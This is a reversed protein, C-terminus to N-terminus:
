IEIPIGWSQLIHKSSIDDSRDKQVIEIKLKTSTDPSLNM